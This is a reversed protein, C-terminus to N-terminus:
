RSSLQGARHHVIPGQFPRDHKTIFARLQDTPCVTTSSHQREVDPYTNIQRSRRSLGSSPPRRKTYTSCTGHLVRHFTRSSLRAQLSILAFKRLHTSIPSIRGTPDEPYRNSWRRIYIYHSPGDSSEAIYRARGSEPSLNLASFSAELVTM